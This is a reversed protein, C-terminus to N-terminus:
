LEYDISGDQPIHIVVLTQYTDFEEDWYKTKLPLKDIPFWGDGQGNYGYNVHVLGKSNYGDIVFSHSFYNNNGNKYSTGGYLVPHGASLERFIIEKWKKEDQLYPYDRYGYYKVIYDFEDAFGNEIQYPDTTSVGVGYNMKMAKGCRAMLLAVADAQAGSYEGTYTALMNDWDLKTGDSLQAPHKYFNLIQALATAVCGTACQKGNVNPTANYYPADQGWQTSLLAPVEDKCGEPIEDGDESWKFEDYGGNGVANDNMDYLYSYFWLDGSFEDGSFGSYGSSTYIAVYYSGSVNIPYYGYEDPSVMPAIEEGGAPVTFDISYGDEGFPAVISYSGDDYSVIDADFTTNLAFSTYSGSKRWKESKTRKFTLAIPQSDSYADDDSTATIYITYEGIALNTITLSSTETVGEIVKGKDDTYRYLYSTAHEVDPWSITIGGNGMVAEPAPATLAVKANTRAKLTAIPSTTKDGSVNAYAWVKLTYESDEQLGTAIVSTTSTIDGMVLKEQADYLEYAYQTAGNVAQWNFALSSVKTEGASLAPADLPTKTIDDDSCSTIGVCTMVLLLLFSYIKKM